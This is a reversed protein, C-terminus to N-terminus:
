CTSNRSKGQVRGHLSGDSRGTSTRTFRPRSSNPHWFWIWRCISYARFRSHRRSGICNRPDPMAASKFITAPVPNTPIPLTLTSACCSEAVTPVASTKLVLPMGHSESTCMRIWAGCAYSSAFTQPFRAPTTRGIPPWSCTSASKSAMLTQTESDCPTEPHIEFGWPHVPRERRGQRKSEVFAEHSEKLISKARAIVSSAQPGLIPRFSGDVIELAQEVQGVTVNTM